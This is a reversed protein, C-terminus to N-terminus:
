FKGGSGGHTNGSSSTHTNNEQNEKKRKDVKKYLYIDRSEQLRFSNTKKYDAAENKRRVTKLQAIMSGVAIAAIVIGVGISILLWLGFNFKEGEKEETLYDDCEEAFTLFAKEYDDDSLYPLFEEAAADQEATTLADIGFGSTTIYWTGSDMVVLLMIGDHSYGSSDYLDDAYSSVSEGGTSEVAAVAVDCDQSESIDELRELVQDYESESLLGAEDILLPQAAFSNMPFIASVALMLATLLAGTFKRLKM